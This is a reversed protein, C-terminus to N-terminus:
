YKNTNPFPLAVSVFIAYLRSFTRRTDHGDGECFQPDARHARRIGVESARLESNRACQILADHRILATDLCRALHVTREVEKPPAQQEKPKEATEASRRRREWEVRSRKSGIRCHARRVSLKVSLVSVLYVRRSM